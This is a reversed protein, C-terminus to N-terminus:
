YSKNYNNSRGESAWSYRDVQQDEMYKNKGKTLLKKYYEMWEKHNIVQM